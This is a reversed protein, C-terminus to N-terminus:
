RCLGRHGSRVVDVNDKFRRLTGVKGARLEKDGRMVRV